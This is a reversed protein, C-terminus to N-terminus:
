GLQAHLVLRLEALVPRVRRRGRHRGFTAILRRLDHRITASDVARIDAVLEESSACAEQVDGAVALQLARRIGYRAHTRREGPPITALGARLAEAGEGPRGLDYLSWGAALKEPRSLVASGLPSPGIEAAEAYADGAQAMLERYAHEDGALAHGQAQRALASARVRPMGEALASANRALEVTRAPDGRYLAILAERVLAHAAMERDDSAQALAVARRTWALAAADDGAEQAMWGTYEAFRGAIWVLGDREPLDVAKILGTLARLHGDLLPLVTAPGSRRGVRRLRDLLATFEATIDESEAPGTPRRTPFTLGAAIEATDVTLGTRATGEDPRDPRGPALLAVLRGDAELAVDALRALEPTPQRIGNEVKSLHGKTYHIRRALEALSIDALLRRWRLEAGFGRGSESM